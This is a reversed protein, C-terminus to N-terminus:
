ELVFYAMLNFKFVILSSPDGWPPTEIQDVFVEIDNVKKMAGWEKYKGIAIQLQTAGENVMQNEICFRGHLEHALAECHTFNHISASDASSDDDSIEAANSPRRWDPSPIEDTLLELEFEIIKEYAEQEARIREREQDWRDQM